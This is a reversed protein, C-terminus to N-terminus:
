LYFDDVTLNKLGTLQIGLEATGDADTSARVVTNGGSSFYGVAGSTTGLGAAGVFRFAQDGARTADADIGSLDLDDVGPAFDTVVDRTASGVPSDGVLNYDYLDRGGGGTATDKGTNGRFLNAQADGFFRDAGSGGVAGEIGVLTDTAAGQAATDTDGPADGRLDVTVAASTGGYSALDIGAGGNLRDNGPSGDLFDGGDGGNVTDNGGLSRVIDHGALASITNAGSTGTLVDNDASRSTSPQFASEVAGLDPLGDAPQPRAQGLQDNALTALRDGGSLAPNTVSGRLPVVGNANLRGGGTDPDIAAFLLDPAVNERDGAIDGSVETGFANHGNSATITGSIDDAAILENAPYGGDSVYNGAVISNRVHLNTDSCVLVGAGDNPCINRTVTSNAITVAGGSAEIGGGGSLHHGGGNENGSITSNTITLRSNAAVIGAADGDARNNAITSAELTLSSGVLFLRGGAGFQYGSGTNLEVTSRALQVTSGAAVFIGGGNVASNGAITSDRIVVTNGGAAAIGGGDSYAYYGTEVSNSSVTTRDLTLTSGIDAFIGGGDGSASENDPDGTDNGTVASDTLALTAGSGLFIGGGNEGFSRSNTLVLDDLRADTDGGTIVLVRSAQNADLTVRGGSEDADGDITVDQNLTLQGGTLVLTRGEVAAAFRITDAAANAQAVAERLSLVGDGANVVDAATTVTFTAV